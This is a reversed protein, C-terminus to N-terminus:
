SVHFAVSLDGQKLYTNTLLQNLFSIELKPQNANVSILRFALFFFIKYKGLYYSFDDVNRAYHIVKNEKSQQIFYTLQLGSSHQM